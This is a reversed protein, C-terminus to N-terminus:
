QKKYLIRVNGKEYLWVENIDYIFNKDNIRDYICRRIYRESCGKNNDIIVRDSQKLGHSLMNSIKRKTWEGAYGEYEYTIGNIILDPCKREYVTGRLMGFVEDYRLDKHHLKTTVKVIDGNEAFNRAITLTDKYDSGKEIGKATQIM